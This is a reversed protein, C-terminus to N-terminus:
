GHRTRSQKSVKGLKGSIAIARKALISASTSETNQSITQSIAQSDSLDSTCPSSSRLMRRRQLQPEISGTSNRKRSTTKEIVEPTNKGIQLNEHKNEQWTTQKENNPLEISNSHPKRKPETTSLGSKRKEFKLQAELAASNDSTEGSGSGLSSRISASSYRRQLTNKKITKDEKEVVNPLLTDLDNAPSYLDHARLDSRTAAAATAKAPLKLDVSNDEEEEDEEENDSAEAYCVPV